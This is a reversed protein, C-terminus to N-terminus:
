RDSNLTGFGSRTLTRQFSTNPGDVKSFRRSIMVHSSQIASSRPCCVPASPKVATCLFQQQADMPIGFFTTVEEPGNVEFGARGLASLLDKGKVRLRPTM